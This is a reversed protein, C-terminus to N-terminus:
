FTLKTQLLFHVKLALGFGIFLLRSDITGIGSHSTIIHITTIIVLGIKGIFYVFSTFNKLFLCNKSVLFIFICEFVKQWFYGLNSSSQYTHVICIPINKDIFNNQIIQLKANLLYYNSSNIFFLNKTHYSVQVAGTNTICLGLTTM